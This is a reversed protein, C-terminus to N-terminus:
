YIIKCHKIASVDPREVKYLEVWKHKFLLHTMSRVLSSHPWIHCKDIVSVDWWIARYEHFVYCKIYTSTMFFFPTVYASVTSCVRLSSGSVMRPAMLKLAHIESAINSTTVLLIKVLAQTLITAHTASSARAQFQRVYVHTFMTINVRTHWPTTQDHNCSFLCYYDDALINNQALFRTIHVM